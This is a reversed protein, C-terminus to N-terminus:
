NMKTLLNILYRSNIKLIFEIKKKRLYVSMEKCNIGESITWHQIKIETLCYNKSNWDLSFTQSENYTAHKSITELTQSPFTSTGSNSEGSSLVRRCAIYVYRNFHKIRGLNM